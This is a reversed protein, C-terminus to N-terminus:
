WRNPGGISATVWTSKASVYIACDCLMIKGFPLSPLRPISGRVIFVNLELWLERLLSTASSYRIPDSVVEVFEEITDAVHIIYHLHLKKM